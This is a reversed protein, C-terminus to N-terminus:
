RGLLIAPGRIYWMGLIQENGMTYNSPCLLEVTIAKPSVIKIRVYGIMNDINVETLYQLGIQTFRYDQDHLQPIERQGQEPPQLGNLKQIAERLLEDTNRCDHGSDM